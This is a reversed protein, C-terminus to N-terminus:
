EQLVELQHLYFLPLGSSAGPDFGAALTLDPFSTLKPNNWPIENAVSKGNYTLSCTKKEFDFSVKLEQWKNAEYEGIRLPTYDKGSKQMLSIGGNQFIVIAGNSEWSGGFFFDARYPGDVPIAFRLRYTGKGKGKAGFDPTKVTVSPAFTKPTAANSTFLLAAKPSDPIAAPPAVIKAEGWSGQPAGTWVIFNPLESVADGPAENAYDKAFVVAPASDARLSLGASLVLAAALGLRLFSSTM